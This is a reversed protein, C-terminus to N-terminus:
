GNKSQGPEEIKINESDPSGATIFRIMGQQDAKMYRAKAAGVYLLYSGGPILGRVQHDVTGRSSDTTERWQRVEASWRIVEVDCTDHTSIVLASAPQDGPFYRLEEGTFSSGFASAATVSFRGTAVTYRGKSLDIRYRRDRLWYNVRTGDLAGTLHPDLYLRNYRPRIGYIDRYLGVVAMVNNSLIDDGAGKGTVRTYRQFALGDAEYRRIVNRIYKLAIAPNRNAYCRVGLEAWALFLDGNEYRPFPYNVNKLGLGDRFPFFCSPWIFLKERNMLTEIRSLVANQRTTDDCLGYGIALFNVTSVLNDGYVAGDKERWYAYWKKRPDWFGGEDISKNFAAKLRGALQRYKASMQIDGLLEELESWRVLAKYMYANISAVECSAWVVDMWDCGKQDKYSSQVVRFLGDGTLYRRIMYGLVKETAPKFQRLWGTDGTMDFQEAVDIAYAPQADLMYGWECEYFGDPQYTGSMADSSDQHWRPLVRGEKTIAHDREYALTQSYGAIFGPADVALGTLALWPEQLVVFGSRWGNSGYLDRDVVGYRGITNLMENVAAGDIGKLVGRDYLSDYRLAQLRYTVESHLNGVQVPGFVPQGDTLFRRLGFRTKVPSDSVAQVLSWRGTKEHSFTAVRYASGLGSPTIKLCNNRARNWLTLTGAHAGYRDEPQDLLHNWAVGGNDLLAGDWTKMSDFQWCPFESEELPGERPYRREIRWTIDNEGAHFVWREAVPFAKNGFLLHDVVVSDGKATVEPDRLPVRSSFYQSDLRIGSYVVSGSGTVETGNVIIRDLYCGGGYRLRLTLNGTADRITVSRNAQDNRVRFQGHVCITTGLTLAALWTIFPLKNCAKM